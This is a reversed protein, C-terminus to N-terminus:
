MHYLHSWRKFKTMNQQDSNTVHKMISADKEAYTKIKSNLERMTRPLDKVKM